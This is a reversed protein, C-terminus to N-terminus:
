DTITIRRSTVEDDYSNNYFLRLEYSGEESPATLTVTGKDDDDLYSWSLYNQNSASTKYLAIWNSSAEKSRPVTWDVEISDNAEFTTKDLSISGRSNSVTSGSSFGGSTSVTGNTNFTGVAGYTRDGSRTEFVARYSYLSNAELNSLVRRHTVEREGRDKEIKARTTKKTLSGVGYEFWAYVYSQSGIEYTASLAVEAQLEPTENEVKTSGSVNAALQSRLADLVGQLYAIYERDNSPSYSTSALASSASTALLFTLVLGKLITTKFM